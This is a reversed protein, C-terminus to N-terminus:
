RQKKRKTTIGGCVGCLGGIVDPVYLLPTCYYSLGSSGPGLASGLPGQVQLCVCVCTSLCFFFLVFCKRGKWFVCGYVSMKLGLFKAPSM